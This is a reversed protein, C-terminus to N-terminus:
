QNSFWDSIESNPLAKSFYYGQAYDCDINQLVDLQEATEVGEAVVSMDFRHALMIMTEVLNRDANSDLIKDIFSKDIKLETVPLDKFNSFSSYGTGFDDISIGVDMDRLENLCRFNEQSAVVLTPETLELTLDCNAGGFISLSSAVIDKLDTERVSNAELNVAVNYRYGNDPWQASEVLATTLVYRTLENILGIDCAIPIFMEPHVTLGEDNTWRLLAEAGIPRGTKIEVKPQYHLQFPKAHIAAALEEQLKWKASVDIPSNKSYIVYNKGLSKASELAIRAKRILEVATDANEPYNAIGMRICSNFATDMHRIADNQLRSIKEAALQQRVISEVGCLLIGFIDDGIRYVRDQEECIELLQEGALNLFRTSQAQKSRALVSSFERMDAIFLTATGDIEEIRSSIESELNEADTRILERALPMPEFSINEPILTM